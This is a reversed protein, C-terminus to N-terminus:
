EDLGAYILDSTDIFYTEFFSDPAGILNGDKNISINSVDPEGKINDIYIINIDEQKLKGQAVLLRFRNILYESHTEIIYHRKLLNQNFYTALEAQGSPHLHVEPQNILMTSNDPLEINAVLIPLLQSIGFGVDTVNVKEKHGHPQINLQVLDDRIPSTDIDNVLKILRMDSILKNYKKSSHQKWDIVFSYANSGTNNVSTYLNDSEYHRSPYARIPGIYSFHKKIASFKTKIDQLTTQFNIGKELEEIIDLPKRSKLSVWDTSSIMGKLMDEIKSDDRKGKTGAHVVKTFKALIKQIGELNDTNKVTKKVQYGIETTKWKLELKASETDVVVDYPLIHNGSASYRYKGKLELKETASEFVLKMAFKKNGKGGNVIEKFGGLKTMDGYNDFKIPFIGPEKTQLASTIANIVTSKGSSNTGTLLTIKKFNFTEQKFIKFNELELSTLYM